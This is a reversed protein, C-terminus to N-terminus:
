GSVSPLSNISKKFLIYPTVTLLMCLYGGPSLNSPWAFMGIKILRVFPPVFFIVLLLAVPLWKTQSPVTLQPNNLSRSALWIFLLELSVVSAWFWPQSDSRRNEYFVYAIVFPIWIVIPITLWAKIFWIWGKSNIERDM